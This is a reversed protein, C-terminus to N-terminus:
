FNKTQSRTWVRHKNFCWISQSLWRRISLCARENSSSLTTEQASPVSLHSMWLRLRSCRIYTIEKKLQTAFCLKTRWRWSRPTTRSKDFWWNKSKFSILSDSSRWRPKRCNWSKRGEWRISSMLSTKCSVSETPVAIVLRNSTKNSDRWRSRTTM